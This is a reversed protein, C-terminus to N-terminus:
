RFVVDLPTKHDEAVLGQETAQGLVYKRMQEIESESYYRIHGRQTLGCAEAIDNIPFGKTLDKLEVLAVYTGLEFIESRAQYFADESREIAQQHDAAAVITYEDWALSSLLTKLTKLNTFPVAIHGSDADSLIFVVWRPLSEIDKRDLDEDELGTWVQRTEDFAPFHERKEKFGARFHTFREYAAEMKKLDKSAGTDILADKKLKAIKGSLYTDVAELLDVDQALKAPFIM